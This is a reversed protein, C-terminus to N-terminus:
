TSRPVRAYSSTPRRVIVYASLWQPPVRATPSASPFPPTGSRSRLAQFSLAHACGIMFRHRALGQRPAGLATGRLLGRVRWTIRWGLRVCAALKKIQPRSTRANGGRHHPLGWREAGVSRALSPARHLATLWRALRIDASACRDLQARRASGWGGARTCSGSPGAALLRTPAVTPLGRAAAGRVNGPIVQAQAAALLAVAVCLTAVAAPVERARRHRSALAPLMSNSPEHPRMSEPASHRPHAREIRLFSCPATSM